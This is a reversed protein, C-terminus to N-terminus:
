WGREKKREKKNFVEERIADIIDDGYIDVDEGQGAQTKAQAAAIGLGQVRELPTIGRPASAQFQRQGQYQAPGLVRQKRQFGAMDLDKDRTIAAPGTMLNTQIQLLRDPDPTSKRLSLLPFRTNEVPRGYADLRPPLAERGYGSLNFPLDQQMQAGLAAGFDRGAYEGQRKYPDTLQAIKSSTALLPNVVPLGYPLDAIIGAGLSALDREERFKNLGEPISSTAPHELAEMTISSLFTRGGASIVDKIMSYAAGEPHPKRPDFLSSLALSEKTGNKIKEREAEYRMRSGLALMTAIGSWQRVKLNYDLGPIDLKGASIAKVAERIRLDQSGRNAAENLSKIKRDEPDKESFEAPPALMDYAAWGLMMLGTGVAGRGFADAMVAQDKNYAGAIFDFLAKPPTYQFKKWADNARVKIFPWIIRGLFEAGQIGTESAYNGKTTTNMSGWFKEFKNVLTNNQQLVGEEAIAAVKTAIKEALALDRPPQPVEDDLDKLMKGVESIRQAIFTDKQNKPKGSQMFDNLAQLYLENKLASKAIGGKMTTDVNIMARLLPNAITAKGFLGELKAEAYAERAEPMVYREGIGPLAGKIGRWAAVPADAISGLGTGFYNGISPIATYREGTKLSAMRDFMATIPRKLMNDMIQWSVTSQIDSARGEGSVLKSLNIAAAASELIGKDGAIAKKFADRNLQKFNTSAYDTLNTVFKDLAQKYKGSTNRNGGLFGKAGRFPVNKLVDALDSALSEKKKVELEKLKDLLNGLKGLSEPLAKGQANVNTRPVRVMGKPTEIYANKGDLRKVTGYQVDGAKNQYTVGAGAQLRAPPASQELAMLAVKYNRTLIDINYNGEELSKSVFRNLNQEKELFKVEAELSKRTSESIETDGLDARKLKLETDIEINRKEVDKTFREKVGAQENEYMEQVTPPKKAVIPPKSEAIAKIDAQAKKRQAEFEKRADISAQAAKAEALKKNYDAVASEYDKQAEIIRSEAGKVDEPYKANLARAADQMEIAREIKARAVNLQKQRPLPLASLDDKPLGPTEPLVRSTQKAPAASPSVSKEIPQKKIGPTGESALPKTGRIPSPLEATVGKNFPLRNRDLAETTREPGKALQEVRSTSKADIIPKTARGLNANPPSTPTPAPAPAPAPAPVVKEPEVSMKAPTPPMSEPTTTDTVVVKEKRADRRAKIMGGTDESVRIFYGPDKQGQIKKAPPSQEGRREFVVKGTDESLRMQKKRSKARVVDGPKDSTPIPNPAYSEKIAREIIPKAYNGAEKAAIATEEVTRPPTEDFLPLQRISGTPSPSAFDKGTVKESKKIPTPVLDATGKETKKVPSVPFDEGTAKESKKVPAVFSEGTALESKAVRKPRYAVMARDYAKAVYDPTVKYGQQKLAKALAEMGEDYSLERNELVERGLRNNVLDKIVENGSSEFLTGSPTRARRPNFMDLRSRMEELSESPRPSVGEPPRIADPRIEQRIFDEPNDRGLNRRMMRLYPDETPIARVNNISQDGVDQLMGQFPIEQTRYPDNEPLFETGGVRRELRRDLRITPDDVGLQDNNLLNRRFENTLGRESIGFIDNPRSIDRNFDRVRGPGIPERRLMELRSLPATRGEPLPATDTRPTYFDMNIPPQFYNPAKGPLAIAPYNDQLRRTGPSELRGTQGDNDLPRTRQSDDLFGTQQPENLFRTRRSDLNGTQLEPSLVRPDLDETLTRQDTNPTIDGLALARAGEQIGGGKYGRAAAPLNRAYAIGKGLAFDKLGASLPDTVYPNRSFSDDGTILDSVKDFAPDIAFGTAVNELGPVVGRAVAGAIARGTGSGAQGAIAGVAKDVYPSTVGGVAQFVGAKIGTKTGEKASEVINDAITRNPDSLGSAFRNLGADLGSTIGAGAIAGKPGGVLGGITSGLVGTAIGRATGGIAEGYQSGKNEGYINRFTEMPTEPLKYGTGREILSKAIQFPRGAQTLSDTLSVAGAIVNGAVSEPPAISQVAKRVIQTTSSEPNSAISEATNQPNRGLRSPDFKPTHDIRINRFDVGSSKESTHLGQPRGISPGINQRKTAVTTKYDPALIGIDGGTRTKKKAVNSNPEGGASTEYYTGDQIKKTAVTKRKQTGASVSKPRSVGDNEQSRVFPIQFPPRIPREM